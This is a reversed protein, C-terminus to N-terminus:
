IEHHIPSETKPELTVPDDVCLECCGEGCCYLAMACVIIVIFIIGYLM